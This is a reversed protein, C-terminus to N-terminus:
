KSSVTEYVNKQEPVPQKQDGANNVPGYAPCETLTIEEGKAQTTAETPAEGKKLEIVEYTPGENLNGPEGFGECKETVAAAPVSFLQPSIDCM